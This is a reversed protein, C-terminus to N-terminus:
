IVMVTFGDEAVLAQGLQRYDRENGIRRGLTGCARCPAALIARAHSLLAQRARGAGSAGDALLRARQQPLHQQSEHQREGIRLKPASAVMWGPCGRSKRVYLVCFGKHRSPSM